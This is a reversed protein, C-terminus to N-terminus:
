CLDGQSDKGGDRGGLVVQPQACLPRAQWVRCMARPRPVVSTGAPGRGSTCAQVVVCVCIGV